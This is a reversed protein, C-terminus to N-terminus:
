WKLNKSNFVPGDSCVCRHGDKTDEVCCLCAGVGCAMKNELSVECDIQKETALKAIAKMMPTPGCTFIQDFSEKEWVSHQTVFGKEGVSGDETTTLVRGFKEFMKLELLDKASRAGLLFTPEIGKEKLKAGLELMPAVGVGGGILLPKSFNKEISFGNGLPYVINLFESSKIKSLQETGKGVKQILLWIENKEKDTYHISIPRRLFVDKSGDIRIEVFQGAKTEALPQDSTLKLLFYSNNLHQNEKVQLDAIYKKM